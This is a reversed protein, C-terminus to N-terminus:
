SGFRSVLYEMDVLVSAEGKEVARAILVDSLRLTFTEGVPVEVPQLTAPEDEVWASLVTVPLPADTDNVVQLTIAYDLEGMMMNASQARELRKLVAPPVAVGLPLEDTTTLNFADESAYEAAEGDRDIPLAIDFEAWNDMGQGYCERFEVSPFVRPMMEQAQVLADSPKRSDEFDDCALVELRVTGPLETVEPDQLASIPVKAAFETKCGVLAIGAAAIAAVKMGQM